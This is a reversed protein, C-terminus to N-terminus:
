KFTKYISIKEKYNDPNLNNIVIDFEEFEYSINVMNNKITLLIDYIPYQIYTNKINFKISEIEKNLVRYRLIVSCNYCDFYEVYINKISFIFKLKKLCYICNYKM